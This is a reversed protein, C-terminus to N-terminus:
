VDIPELFAAPEVLLRADVPVGDRSLECTASSITRSGPTSREVAALVEEGPHAVLQLHGILSPGLLSELAVLMREELASFAEAPAGALLARAELLLCEGFSAEARVSLGGEIDVVTAEGVSARLLVRLVDSPSVPPSWATGDGAQLDSGPAQGILITSILLAIALFVLADMLALQGGSGRPLEGSM